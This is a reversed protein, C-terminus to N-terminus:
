VLFFAWRNEEPSRREEVAQGDEPYAVSSGVMTGKALMDVTCM